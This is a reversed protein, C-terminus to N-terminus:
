RAASALWPNPAVVVGWPNSGVPVRAIVSLTEVDVVSVDDSPGNATYLRRGDMSLAIGWPREGVEVCRRVRLATLDVECVTRARGNTVYLTQDDPSLVLGMSRSGEPMEITAIVTSASVDVLSVTGDIESSVCARRGDSSFVVDRPRLGVQIRSLVEGTLADIVTVDHDSEGTVYALRDDPSLAVGEPETGVDVTYLIEGSAVDVITAQGVDENSVYIRTGDRTIDFQEPDSGGPLVRVVESKILDVEAIGDQTKDTVQQDCEEDSMWPPCRPSGSLAVYFRRGAPGVKIGRPRRGVPITTVVENTVPDILSIDGSDENSVLILEPGVVRLPRGPAPGNLPRGGPDDRRIDESGSWCGSLASLLWVAALLPLRLNGNPRCTDNTM